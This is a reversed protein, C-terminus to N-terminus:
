GNYTDMLAESVGDEVDLDLMPDGSRGEAQEDSEASQWPRASAAPPPSRRGPDLPRKHGPRGHGNTSAAPHASM